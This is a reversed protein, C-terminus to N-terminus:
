LMSDQPYYQKNSKWPFHTQVDLPIYKIGIGLEVFQKSRQKPM